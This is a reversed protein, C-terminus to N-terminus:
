LTAGSCAVSKVASCPVHDQTWLAYGYSCVILVALAWPWVLMFVAIRIKAKAPRVDSEILTNAIKDLRESLVNLQGSLTSPLDYIEELKRENEQNKILISKFNENLSSTKELEHELQEVIKKADQQYISSQTEHIASDAVALGHPDEDMTLSRLNNLKEKEKKFGMIANSLKVSADSPLPTTRENFTSIINKLREFNSQVDSVVSQTRVTNSIEDMTAKIREKLGRLDKEINSFVKGEDLYRLWYNAGLSLAVVFFVTEIFRENLQEFRLGFISSDCGLDLYSVAVSTLGVLEYKTNAAYTEKQLDNYSFRTATSVQSDNDSVVFVGM